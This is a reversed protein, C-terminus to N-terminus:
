LRPRGDRHRADIIRMIQNLRRHNAAVLTYARTMLQLSKRVRWFPTWRLEALSTEIDWDADEYKRLLEAVREAPTVIPGEPLRVVTRL